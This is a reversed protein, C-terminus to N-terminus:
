SRRRIWAEVELWDWVPVTDSIVAVPKPFTQHRTRWKHVTDVKVGARTAIDKAGVLERQELAIIYDGADRLLNQTQPDDRYRKEAAEDWLAEAIPPLGNEGWTERM